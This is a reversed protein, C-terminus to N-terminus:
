GLVAPDFRLPGDFATAGDCSTCTPGHTWCRREDTQHHWIGCRPCAVAPTAVEIAVTCRPCVLPRDGPPLAVVVPRSETSFYSRAGDVLLEDRDRLVAIGTALAVGNVRVTAPGLLVWTGNSDVLTAEGITTSADILRLAWGPVDDADVSRDTAIWLHPM